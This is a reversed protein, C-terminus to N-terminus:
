TRAKSPIPTGRPSRLGMSSADCPRVLCEAMSLDCLLMHCAPRLTRDSGAGRWPHTEHWCTTVLSGQTLTTRGLEVGGGEMPQDYASIHSHSSTCRSIVRLAFDGGPLLEYLFRSDSLSESAEKGEGWLSKTPSFHSAVDLMATSVVGLPIDLPESRGVVSGVVVLCM